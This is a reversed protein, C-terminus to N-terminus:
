SFQAAAVKEAIDEYRLYAIEPAAIRSTRIRMSIVEGLPHGDAFGYLKRYGTPDANSLEIVSDTPLNAGQRWHPPDFVNSGALVLLDTGIPIPKAGMARAYATSGAATAALVGDAMLRPFRVVGNVSVKSWGAKGMEVQMWADNFALHERVIGDRGVAEVHLMPSRLTTFEQRFFADNIESKVDNLLYGHTGMHVPLFPLRLPWHDEVAHFLTGDGGLTVILNPDKEDYRPCLKEALAVAEKRRKDVIFLPRPDAIALRSRHSGVGGRYLHNREIYEAVAPVVLGDLSLHNSARRRIEESSGGSGVHLLMHRPPLDAEDFPVGERVCVVFRLRNWLEPGNVWVRHIVSVGDKGGAILDTGVVHWLESGDRSHRAHLEETRTFTNLELDSLDVHVKEGLPKFTLDAMVARHVPAIDNTTPKDPRPGCVVVRLEDFLNTDRVARAVEFHHVGPPNFAGGFIAKKM